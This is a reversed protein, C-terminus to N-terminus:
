KGVGRQMSTPWWFVRVSAGWAWLGGFVTSSIGHPSLPKLWARIVGRFSSPHFFTAWMLFLTKCSGAICYALSVM